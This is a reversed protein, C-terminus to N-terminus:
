THLQVCKQIQPQFICNYLPMKNTHTTHAEEGTEMLKTLVLPAAFAQCHVSIQTKHPPKGVSEQTAVRHVTANFKAYM